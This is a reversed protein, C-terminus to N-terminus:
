ARRDILWLMEDIVKRQAEAESKGLQLLDVLVHDWTQEFYLTFMWDATDYTIDATLQMLMVHLRRCPGYATITPINYIRLRNVTSAVVHQRKRNVDGVTPRKSPLLAFM